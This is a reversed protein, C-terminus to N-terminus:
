EEDATDDRVRRIRYLLQNVKLGCVGCCFAMAVGAAGCVWWPLSEENLGFWVGYGAGALGLVFCLGIVILERWEHGRTFPTLVLPLVLGIMGYGVTSILVRGVVGGFVLHFVVLGMGFVAGCGGFVLMRLFVWRDDADDDDPTTPTNSM